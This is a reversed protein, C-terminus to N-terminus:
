AAEGLRCHLSDTWRQCSRIPSALTVEVQIHNRAWLGACARSSPSVTVLLQTRRFIHKRPHRVRTLSDGDYALNGLSELQGTAEESAAGASLPAPGLAQLFGQNASDADKGYNNPENYGGAVM